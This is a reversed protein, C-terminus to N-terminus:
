VGEKGVRREETNPPPPSRHDRHGGRRLRRGPRRPTDIRRSPRPWSRMRPEPGVSAPSHWLAATSRYITAVEQRYDSRPLKVVKKSYHGRLFQVIKFRNTSSSFTGSSRFLTTYPFLTDTRTSRPPRRIM